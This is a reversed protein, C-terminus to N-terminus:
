LRAREVDCGHPEDDPTFLMPSHGGPEARDSFYASAAAQAAEAKCAM